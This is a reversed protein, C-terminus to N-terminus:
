EYAEIYRKAAEIMFFSGFVLVLKPQGNPEVFKEASLNGCAQAMAENTSQFSLVNKAYARVRAVLDNLDLARDVELPALLWRDVHPALTSVVGSIDKDALASYVVEVYMGEAHKQAIFNALFQAAHPNHGVDLYLAKDPLVHELRGPISAQCYAASVKQYDFGSAGSLLFTAQLALLVNNDPLALNPFSDFRKVNGDGGSLSLCGNSVSFASHCRLVQCDLEAAKLYVSDPLDEGTLCRQKPRMIGAKEAGIVELDSGLWDVHDIDISTIISMDGDIINVADLRGGLGVELLVVDLNAQFLLQIAALTGFEFYTLPVDGRAREVHEFASILLADEVDRGDLRVRENYRLIHPSTYSGVSYGLSILGAEILAITSGKGNTGAVIVLQSEPRGLAMNEYVTRVRDLGLEIENPHSQAIYGLWENLTSFSPSM